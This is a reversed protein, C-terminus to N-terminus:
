PVRLERLPDRRSAVIAPVLAAVLTTVLTLTGLAVTFATGPWPDRGAALIVAATVAGIAIGAMTLIATQILLLSIILGQTAGLARRRGFDKRRMMVLGYLLVAVLAGTLGLVVVVLGRSFSGLQGEILGRLQALAESTQVTVKSPDDAAMVSLVAKSVPAVLEPTEAIVVLLSVPEEGAADPQPILVVPELGALYDPVAIRGGIGYSAGTTLTIGGAGDPLGLQELATESAWALGGPVASSTPVGLHDMQTGYAYRTPVRTGDPVDANTADVAASFGGAWEIGKIGAIRELVSSTIGAGQEARITISRTGASDISSLVQQEAGVTRGTTLMVTLVMGVVMLVTVVSAVPQSRAAAGAERIVTGIM